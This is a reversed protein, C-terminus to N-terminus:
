YLIWLLTSLFMYWKRLAKKFILWPMELVNKRGKGAYHSKYKIFLEKPSFFDQAISNDKIGSESPIWKLRFYVLVCWWKNKFLRAARGSYVLASALKVLNMSIHAWATYRLSSSLGFSFSGRSKSVNIVHQDPAISPLGPFYYYSVSSKM